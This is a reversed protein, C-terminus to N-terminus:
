QDMGEGLLLGEGHRTLGSLRIAADALGWRRLCWRAGGWDLLGLWWGRRGDTQILDKRRQLNGEGGQGLSARISFLHQRMLFWECHSHAGIASNRVTATILLRILRDNLGGESLILILILSLGDLIGTRQIGEFHSHRGGHGRKLQFLGCLSLWRGVPRAM